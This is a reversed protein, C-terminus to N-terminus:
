GRRACAHRKGRGTSSISSHVAFHGVTRAGGAGGPSGTRQPRDGRTLGAARRHRSFVRKEPVDDAAEAIADDREVAVAGERQHVVLGVPNERQRAPRAVDAPGEGVHELATGRDDAHERARELHAVERVAGLQPQLIQVADDPVRERLHLVAAAGRKPGHHEELIERLHFLELFALPEAIPQRREALHGGADRMLQFIWEGADLDHRAQEPALDGFRDIRLRQQGVDDALRLEGVRDDHLHQLEHPRHPELHLLGIESLDEM